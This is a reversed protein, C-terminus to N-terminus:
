RLRAPEFIPAPGCATRRASAAPERIGMPRASREDDAADCPQEAECSLAHRDPGASAVTRLSGFGSLHGRVGGAEAFRIPGTIPHVGVAAWGRDSPPVGGM